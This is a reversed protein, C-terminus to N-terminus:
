KELILLEQKKLEKVLLNVYSQITNETKYPNTIDISAKWLLEREKGQCLCYLATETHYIKFKEYQEKHYYIEQNQYYDEKFNNFDHNVNNFARIISIKDESSNVKSLLIADFGAEILNNEVVNLEEETQKTSTFNKEFFDISKIAIIGRNELNSALKTEFLRRAEENNSIGIILVKNSEFNITNPDKWQEM